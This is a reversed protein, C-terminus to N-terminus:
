IKLFVRRNRRSTTIEALFVPRFAKPADLSVARCKLFRHLRRRRVSMKQSQLRHSDGDERSQRPRESRVLARLGYPVIGSLSLPRQERGCDHSFGRGGYPVRFMERFGDDRKKESAAPTEEDSLGLLCDAAVNLEKTSKELTDPGKTHSKGGPYNSIDSHATGTALALRRASINGEDPVKQLRDGPITAMHKRRTRMDRGGRRPM